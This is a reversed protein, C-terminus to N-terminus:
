HNHGDHDKDDHDDHDHEAAAKAKTACGACYYKGGVETLQDMPVNTMGCGGDCDHSAVQTEQADHGTAAAKEAEASKEGGGCGALLLLSLAATLILMKKM